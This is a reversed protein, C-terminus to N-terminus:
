VKRRMTVVRYGLLRVIQSLGAKLKLPMPAQWWPIRQFGFRTYYRENAAVCELYVEGTERALLANVILAGVGQQRYSAKVALSGLERCNPYPRVQGIGVMEGECEAILFHSWHLATPDLGEARVLQRIAAQDDATAPRLQIDSM